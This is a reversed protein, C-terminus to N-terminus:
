KSVEYVYLTEYALKQKGVEKSVYQHEKLLKDIKKKKSLSSFLLLIKGKKDLHNRADKLFKEIIEYGEPGGDLAIDKVDADNPLYPPNFIILNFTGKINSFLDSQVITISPDNITKHLHEIVKPNIDALLVREFKKKAEKGLIGSGTGLDLAQKGEYDGIFSLLFYSDERPEYINDSIIM